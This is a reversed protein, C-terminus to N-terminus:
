LYMYYSWLNSVILAWTYCTCDSVHMTCQVKVWNVYIWHKGLTTSKCLSPWWISQMINRVCTTLKPSSFPGLPTVTLIVSPPIHLLSHTHLISKEQREQMLHCRRTVGVSSILSTILWFTDVLPKACHMQLGKNMTSTPLTWILSNTSILSIQLLVTLM